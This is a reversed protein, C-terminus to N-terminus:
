NITGFYTQKTNYSEIAKVCMAFIPTPLDDLEYWNWEESKEPELVKPEGSAWDAIMGVHVYHRDYKVFNGVFQFQINKIEIGTEEATEREACEEFTEGFELHGGPFAYEGAGHANKRQALLVKGDKLIMVGIGAKPVQSM